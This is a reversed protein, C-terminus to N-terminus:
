FFSAVLLIYIVLTLILCAFHAALLCVKDDEMFIAWAPHRRNERAPYQLLNPLRDTIQTLSRCESYTKTCTRNETCLTKVHFYWWGLVLYAFVLLVLVCLPNSCYFPSFISHLVAIPMSKRKIHKCYQKALLNVDHQDMGLLWIDAQLESHKQVNCSQLSWLLENCFGHIDHLFLLM